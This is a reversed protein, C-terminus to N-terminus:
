LFWVFWKNLVVGDLFPILFPYAAAGLVMASGCTVLLVHRKAWSPKPTIVFGRGCQPCRTDPSNTSDSRCHPCTLNNSAAKKM